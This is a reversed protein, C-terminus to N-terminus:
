NESDLDTIIELVIKDVFSKCDGLYSGWGNTFREFDAISLKFYYVFSQFDLDLSSM